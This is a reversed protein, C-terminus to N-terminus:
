SCQTSRFINYHNHTPQQSSCRRRRTENSNWQVGWRHAPPLRHSEHLPHNQRQNHLRNPHKWRSNQQGSFNFIVNILSSNKSSLKIKESSNGSTTIVRQHSANQSESVLIMRRNLMKEDKRWTNKRKWFSKRFVVFMRITLWTRKYCEFHASKSHVELPFTLADGATADKNNTKMKGGGHPIGRFFNTININSFCECDFAFHLSTYHQTISM